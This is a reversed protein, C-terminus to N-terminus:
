KKKQRKVRACLIKKWDSRTQTGSKRDPWCPHAHLNKKPTCASDPWKEETPRQGTKKQVGRSQETVEWLRAFTDPRWAYKKEQRGWSCHACGKQEQSWDNDGACCPFYKKKDRGHLLTLSAPRAACNKKKQRGTEDACVSPRLRKLKIKALNKSNWKTHSWYYNRELSM